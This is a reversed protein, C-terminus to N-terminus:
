CGMLRGQDFDNVPEDVDRIDMKDIKVVTVNHAMRQDRFDQATQLELAASNGSLQLKDAKGVPENTLNKLLFVQCKSLTWKARSARVGGSLIM